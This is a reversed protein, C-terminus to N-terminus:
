KNNILGYFRDKTWTQVFNPALYDPFIYNDYIRREKFVGKSGMRNSAYSYSGPNTNPDVRNQNAM